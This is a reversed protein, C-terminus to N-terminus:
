EHRDGLAAARKRANKNCILLIREATLGDYPDEGEPVKGSIWRDFMAAIDHKM